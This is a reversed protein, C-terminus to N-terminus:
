VDGPMVRVVVSVVVPCATLLSAPYSTSTRRGILARCSLIIALVHTVSPTYQGIAAGKGKDLGFRIKKSDADCIYNEFSFSPRHFMETVLVWLYM